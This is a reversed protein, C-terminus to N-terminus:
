RGGVGAAPPEVGSAGGPPPTTILHLCCSQGSQCEFGARSLIRGSCHQNAPICAAEPENIECPQPAPPVPQLPEPEIIPGPLDEGLSVDHSSCNGALLLVPWLWAARSWATM